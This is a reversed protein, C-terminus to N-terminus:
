EIRTFDIRGNEYKEYRRMAISTNKMITRDHLITYITGIKTYQRSRETRREDNGAAENGNRGLM